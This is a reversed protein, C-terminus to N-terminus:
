CDIVRWDYISRLFPVNKINKEPTIDFVHTGSVPYDISRSTRHHSNLNKESKHLHSIPRFIQGNGANIYKM